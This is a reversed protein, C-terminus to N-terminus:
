EEHGRRPKLGIVREIERQQEPTAFNYIAVLGSVKPYLFGNEWRSISSHNLELAEAFESQSLGAAHRIEYILRGLNNSMSGGKSYRSYRLVLIACTTRNTLPTDASDGSTNFTSIQTYTNGDYVDLDVTWYNSGDNTTDVFIDQYWMQVTMAYGVAAGYATQDSSVNWGGEAPTFGILSSAFGTARLVGAAPDDSGVTAGLFAGGAAQIDGAAFLYKQVGGLALSVQDAGPRYFGTDTDDEWYVTPSGATGDNGLILEDECYIDGKVDLFYDPTVASTMDTDIRVGLFQPSDGILDIWAEDATNDVSCRVVATSPVMRDISASLTVEALNDTDDISAYLRAEVDDNSGGLAYLDLHVNSGDDVVMGYGRLNDSGDLWKVASGAQYDSHTDLTLGDNDLTVAGAGATLKGSTKEILVQDTGSNQGCIEDANLRFGTADVDWDGTYMNITGATITGLDAYIASLTSGTIETATIVGAGIESATITNAAIENATITNAIIQDASVMRTGQGGFMVWTPEDEDTEHWGVGILIKNVGVADSATTSTQFATESTDKDFYIYTPTDDGMPGTNGASISFDEGSGLTLTGLGWAVIDEGILPGTYKQFKGSYQWGLITLATGEAPSQVKAGTVYLDTGDFKMYKTSGDGVYLRPTGSNYQLQIGQNEWTQNHIWIDESGSDMGVNSTYIADAGVTWGGIEGSSATIAGSLTASSATLNGSADLETNAAKWTLKTGDYNLYANAGDGIYARPNGSNYQLQIGDAGYNVNHISIKQNDADIWMNTNYLSTSGITWGGIEGGTCTLLGTAGNIVFTESGAAQAAIEDANLRFGTADVDWTGSYMNITGATLTGMDAALASLESVTIETATITGAEIESATITNAAIENATITNAIIQAASIKQDGLGGFVVYTPEDEDTEAEAIAVLIKNYGVADTATSSTQFATTSTAKDFYIYTPTDAAMNGTNGASISFDEGSGATLTGSAWEVTNSDTVSFAGDFQWGLVSLATGAPPYLDRPSIYSRYTSEMPRLISTPRWAGAEYRLTDGEMPVTGTALRVENSM